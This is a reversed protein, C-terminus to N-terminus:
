CGGMRGANWNFCNNRIHNFEGEGENAGDFRISQVREQQADSRCGELNPKINSGDARKPMKLWAWALPRSGVFIDSGSENGDRMTSTAVAKRATEEGEKALNESM